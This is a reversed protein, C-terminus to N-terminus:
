AWTGLPKRRLRSDPLLRSPVSGIRVLKGSDILAAVSQNNEFVDLADPELEHGDDDSHVFFEVFALTGVAGSSWERFLVIIEAHRVGDNTLGEPYMWLSFVASAKRANRRSRWRRWGSKLLQSM